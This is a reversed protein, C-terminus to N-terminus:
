ALCRTSGGESGTIYATLRVKAVKGQMKSFKKTGVWEIFEYFRTKVKNHMTANSEGKDQLLLM